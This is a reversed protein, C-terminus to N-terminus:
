ESLLRRLEAKDASCKGIRANAENFGALLDDNTEFTFPVKEYDQLLSRDIPVPLFEVTEIVVPRERYVIEPQITCGACLMLFAVTGGRRLTPTQLAM